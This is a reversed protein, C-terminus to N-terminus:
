GFLVIIIMMLVNNDASFSCSLERHYIRSWCTSHSFQYRQGNQTREKHTGFVLAISKCQLYDSIVSLQGCDQSHLHFIDFNVGRRGGLLCSCHILIMKETM